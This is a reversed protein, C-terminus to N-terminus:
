DCLARSLRDWDKREEKSLSLNLRDLLRRAAVRDIKGYVDFASYLLGQYILHHWHKNYAKQEYLARKMSFPVPGSVLSIRKLLRDNAGITLMKWAEEVREPDEFFDCWMCYAVPDALAADEASLMERAFDWFLHRADLDLDRYVRTIFLQQLLAYAPMERYLDTFFAVCAVDSEGDCADFGIESLVRNFAPTLKRAQWNEMSGTGPAREKMERCARQFVDEGLKSRLQERTV